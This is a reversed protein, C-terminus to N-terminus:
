PGFIGPGPTLVDDPDFRRRAQVLRESHPGFHRKWDDCSLRVASIPYHRGGLQRNEEFLLDFLFFDDGEPVALMPRRLQSRKFPSLLTPFSRGLDAPTHTELFSSLFGDVATGPVFLDIWPHPASLLGVADLDDLQVAM